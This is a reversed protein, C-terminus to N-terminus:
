EGKPTMPKTRALGKGHLGCLVHRQVTKLIHNVSWREFAPAKGCESCIAGQVIRMKM